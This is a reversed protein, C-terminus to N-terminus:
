RQSGASLAAAFLARLELANEIAYGNGDAIFVCYIDREVQLPLLRQALDSLQERSYGSNDFGHLWIYIFKNNVIHQSPSSPTTSTVFAADYRDLLRRIEDNFWSDDPFKLAHRATNPLISLFHELKRKNDIGNNGQLSFDPPFQWVVIGLKERLAASDEFFKHIDNEVNVLKKVQTIVHSGHIAFRFNKGTQEHWRQYDSESVDRNFSVSLEVLNLHEAYFPLWRKEDLDRPYFRDRWEKKNYGDTGVYIEGAM